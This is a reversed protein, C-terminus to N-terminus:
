SLHAFTGARAGLPLVFEIAYCARRRSGAVRPLCPIFSTGRCGGREFLECFM